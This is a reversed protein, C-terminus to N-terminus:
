AYDYLGSKRIQNAGVWGYGNIYYPYLQTNLPNKIIRSVVLNQNAFSGLVYTGESDSYYVGNVFVSEGATIQSTPIERQNEPTVNLTTNGDQVNTDNINLLIPTYDRYEKLSIEYYFDGVEGGKEIQRFSEIVVQMNTELNIITGDEYRRDIILRFATKNDMMNNIFNLYFEPPRFDSGTVVYYEGPERPFFSEWSITRLKPIRPVVIEGISLVNYGGNDTARDIAYEEIPNIPLRIVNIGNSFYIGYYIARNSM